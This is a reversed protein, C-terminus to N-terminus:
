RELGSRLPPVASGSPVAATPRAPRRRRDTGCHPQLTVAVTVAVIRSPPVAGHRGNAPRVLQLLLQRRLAARAVALRRGGAPPPGPAAAGATSSAALVGAGAGSPLPWWLCAWWAWLTIRLTFRFTLRLCLRCSARPSGLTPARSNLDHALGTVDTSRTALMPLGGSPAHTAAAAPTIGQLPTTVTCPGIPPVGTFAIPPAAIAHPHLPTSYPVADSLLM